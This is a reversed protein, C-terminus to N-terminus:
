VSIICYRGLWMYYARKFELMKRLKGEQCTINLLMNTLLMGFLLSFPLRFIWGTAVYLLSEKKPDLGIINYRGTKKTKDKGGSPVSESPGSAPVSCLMATVAADHRRHVAAVVDPPIDSVIDGSVVQWVLLFWYSYLLLKESM